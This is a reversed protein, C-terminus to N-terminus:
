ARAPATTEEPRYLTTAKHVCWACYFLSVGLILLLAAVFPGATIGPVRVVVGALAVVGVLAELVYVVGCVITLQRLIGGVKVWTKAKDESTLLQVFLSLGGVVLILGALVRVLVTVSGPVFTAYCGLMATGVGAMVVIWSRSLDGLPTKGMTIIQLSVLVLFLGDTSDPSYLLAGTNIQFLLLGYLVFFLGFVLLLVVEVSLDLEGRQGLSTPRQMQGEPGQLTDGDNM